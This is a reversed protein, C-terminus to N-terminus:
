WDDTILLVLFLVQSGDRAMDSDLVGIYSLTGLM